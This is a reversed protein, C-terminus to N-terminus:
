PRAWQAQPARPATLVKPAPLAGLWLGLVEPEGKVAPVELDQVVALVQLQAVAELAETGETGETGELGVQFVMNTLVQNPDLPVLEATRARAVPEVRGASLGLEAAAVMPETTAGTAALVVLAARPQPRVTGRREAHQMTM